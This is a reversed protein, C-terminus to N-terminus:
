HCSFVIKIRRLLPPLGKQRKLVVPGGTWYTQLESMATGKVGTVTAINDVKSLRLWLQSGDEASAISWGTLLLVLASILVKKM